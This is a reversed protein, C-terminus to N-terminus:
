MRRKPKFLQKTRPHFPQWDIVYLFPFSGSYNLITITSDFNVFFTVKFLKQSDYIRLGMPRAIGKWEMDFRYSKSNYGIVSKRVWDTWYLIDDYIALGFKHFFGGGVPNYLLFVVKRNNGQFDIKEIRDLRADCWYLVKNKIDLSVANIWVIWFIESSVLVTRATGDM